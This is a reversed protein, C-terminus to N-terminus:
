ASTRGWAIEACWWRGGGQADGWADRLQFKERNGSTGDKRACEAM